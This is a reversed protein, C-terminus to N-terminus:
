NNPCTPPKYITIIIVNNAVLHLVLWEVVGNSGASTLVNGDTAFNDGLYVIVRVKKM